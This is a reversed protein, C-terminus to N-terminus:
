VKFITNIEQHFLKRYRAGASTKWLLLAFSENPYCGYAQLNKCPLMIKLPVFLTRFTFLDIPPTTTFFPPICHEKEFIDALITGLYGVKTDFYNHLTKHIM